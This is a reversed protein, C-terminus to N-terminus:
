TSTTTPANSDDAVVETKARKAKIGGDAEESGAIEPVPLPSSSAARKLGVQDVAPVAEASEKCASEPWKFRVVIATMNDCGTGDGSTDKALCHDFLEECIKSLHTEGKDLRTKM